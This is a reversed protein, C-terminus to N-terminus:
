AASEDESSPDGSAEDKNNKTISDVNSETEANLLQRQKQVYLENYIKTLKRRASRVQNDSIEGPEVEKYRNNIQYRLKEPLQNLFFERDSLQVHNLASVWQDLSMESGLLPIFSEQSELIEYFPTREQRIRSGDHLARYLDKEDRPDATDLYDVLDLDNFFNKIDNENRPPHISKARERVFDLIKSEPVEFKTHSELFVAWQGPFLIKATGLELNTPLQNLIYGAKEIPLGELAKAIDECNMRCLDLGLERMAKGSGDASKEDSFHKRMRLRELRALIELSHGNLPTPLAIARFWWQGIGHKYLGKLIDEDLEALISGMAGPHREGEKEIFSMMHPDPVKFMEINKDILVMCSKRLEMMTSGDALDTAKESASEEPKSPRAPMQPQAMNLANSAFKKTSQGIEKIPQSLGKILRSVHIRTLLWFALFLAAMIVAFTGGVWQLNRYREQNAWSMKTVVISDSDPDLKLQTALASQLEGVEEDSLSADVKIDIKIKKTEKILRGLSVDPRDWINVNEDETEYWFPLDVGSDKMMRFEKRTPEVRGTDISVVISFPKDPFRSQLFTYTRTHFYDEVEAVRSAQAFTSCTLISFITAILLSGRM